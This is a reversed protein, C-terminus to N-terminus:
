RADVQRIIFAGALWGTDGSTALMLLMPGMIVAVEV